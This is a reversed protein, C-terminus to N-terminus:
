GPELREERARRVQLADYCFQQNCESWGRPCDKPLPLISKSYSEVASKRLASVGDVEIMEAVAETTCIISQRV